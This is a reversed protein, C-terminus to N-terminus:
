MMFWGEAAIKEKARKITRDVTGKHLGLLQAIDEHSYGNAVLELIEKQRETLSDTIAKSCREKQENSLNILQEDEDEAAEYQGIDKNDKQRQIWYPEFPVEREYTARREIGRKRNPQGGRRLWSIIYNIDSLMQKVTEYEGSLELEEASPNELRNDQNTSHMQKVVSLKEEISRLMTETHRKTQNYEKLLKKVQM